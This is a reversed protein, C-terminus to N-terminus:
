RLATVTGQLTENVEEGDEMARYKAIYVFVNSNNKEPLVSGDWRFDPDHSEYVKEGWRNLILMSFDLIECQYYARFHSNLGDGNPTFANPFYMSCSCDEYEVNIRDYATGCNNSVTLDYRGAERVEYSNGPSLDQWKFTLVDTCVPTLLLSKGECLLQDEGLEVSPLPVYNVEVEDWAVGCRDSVTLRYVGEERVRYYLAHSGNQWTYLPHSTDGFIAGELILEQGECLLTDDALRVVPPGMYDFVISDVAEYCEYNMRVWYLGEKSVTYFPQESGDQWKYTVNPRPDRADLKLEVGECLLTDNGLWVDLEETYFNVSDTFTECITEMNVWYTGPSDIEFFPGTSSDSWLYDAGSMSADYSYIDGECFLRDPGLDFNILQHIDVQQAVSDTGCTNFAKIWYTGPLQTAIRQFYNEGTSWVFDGVLSDATLIARGGPCIVTDKSLRVHPLEKIRIERSFSFPNPCGNVYIDVDIRYDGPASFQHAPAERKSLKHSSLSDNFRWLVSDMDHTTTLEFRTSDGFCNGTFTFDRQTEHFVSQCFTPLGMKSRRGALPFGNRVYGCGVGPVNPDSIYDLAPQEVRSVYIRGDPGQQLAGFQEVINNLKVRSSQIAASNGSTLNFQYLNAVTNNGAVYLLNGDPSFELGYLGNYAPVTLERYNSLEGTSKNFDLLEIAPAEAGNMTPTGAQVLALKSGDPSLKMYGVANYFNSGHFSGIRSVVPNPDVGKNTVKYAYFKDGGWQHVLVWVDGGNCHNVATLKETVQGLLFHNKEAPLIGGLGGNLRMDIVSYHLGRMTIAPDPGDVTFVVYKKPDGPWPVLIASQTSTWHGFLNNGNQIVQHDAGIVSQGSTYLLINGDADCIAACGEWTYLAGNTIAVPATGNFDIGASEGFYWVNAEKQARCDCYMIVGCVLSLFLQLSPKM